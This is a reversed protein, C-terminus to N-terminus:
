KTKPGSINRLWNLTLIYITVKKSSIKMLKYYNHCVSRIRSDNVNKSM